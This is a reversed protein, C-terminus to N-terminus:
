QSELCNIRQSIRLLYKMYHHSKLFTLFQSGQGPNRITRIGAFFCEFLTIGNYKSTHSIDRNKVNYFHFKNSHKYKMKNNGFLKNAELLIAM